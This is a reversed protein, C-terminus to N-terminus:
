VVFDVTTSSVKMVWQNNSMLNVRRKGDKTLLRTFTEYSDRSENDLYFLVSCSYKLLNKILIKRSFWLEIFIM